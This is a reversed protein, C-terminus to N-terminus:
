LNKMREYIDDSAANSDDRTKTIIESIERAKEIELDAAAKMKQVEIKALEKAARVQRGEPSRQYEEEIALARAKAAQEDALRTSVELQKRKELDLRAKENELEITKARAIAAENERRKRDEEERKIREQEAVRRSEEWRAEDKQRQIQEHQWQREMKENYAKDEANTIEKMGEELSALMLIVGAWSALCYFLPLTAFYLLSAYIAPVLKSFILAITYSAVSGLFPSIAVLPFLFLIPFIKKRSRYFEDAESLLRRVEYSPERFMIYAAFVVASLAGTLLYSGYGTFLFDLGGAHPSSYFYFIDRRFIYFYLLHGAYSILILPLLDM